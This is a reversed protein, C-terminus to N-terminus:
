EAAASLSLRAAAKVSAATDGCVAKHVKWHAKQAAASHYWVGKCRACQKAGKVLPKCEDV